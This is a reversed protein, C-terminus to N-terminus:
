FTSVEINDFFIGSPKSDPMLALMLYFLVVVVVVIKLRIRDRGEVCV